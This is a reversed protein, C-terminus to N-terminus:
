NTSFRVVQCSDGKEIDHVVINDESIGFSASARKKIYGIFV